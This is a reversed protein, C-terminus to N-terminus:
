FYLTRLKQYKEGLIQNGRFTHVPFVTKRKNNDPFKSETVSLMIQIGRGVHLKLLASPGRPRNTNLISM